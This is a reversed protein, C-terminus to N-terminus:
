GDAEPRLVSGCTVLWVQFFQQRGIQGKQSLSEMSPGLLELAIWASLSKDKNMIVGFELPRPIGIACPCHLKLRKYVLWEHVVYGMADSSQCVKLAVRVGSERHVAEYVTACGGKGLPAPISYLQNLTRKTM